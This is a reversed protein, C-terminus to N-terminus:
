NMPNHVFRIKCLKIFDNIRELYGGEEHEEIEGFRGPKLMGLSLTQIVEIGRDVLTSELDTLTTGLKNDYTCFLAVADAQVDRVYRQIMSKARQFGTPTGIVVLDCGESHQLANNYLEKEINREKKTGRGKKEMLNVAYVECELGEAILEAVAKTNGTKSYYVVISRM